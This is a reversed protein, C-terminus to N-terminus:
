GKRYFLMKLAFGADDQRIGPGIEEHADAPEVRWGLKIVLHRNGASIVRWGFFWYRTDKKKDPWLHVIKFGAKWGQWCFYWVTKNPTELRRQKWPEYFHRLSATEYEPSTYKVKRMDIDLDLLEFSRLGNASNRVAHYKYFSGFSTGFKDVWWKPLSSEHHQPGGQWDEPNSWPRTWWPLDDYNTNRYKWLLPVVIFGFITTPLKVAVFLIWMLLFVPLKIINM